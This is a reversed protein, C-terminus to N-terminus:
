APRVQKYLNSSASTIPVGPTPLAAAPRRPAGALARPTFGATITRPTSAGTLEGKDKRAKQGAMAGLSGTYYNAGAIMGSLGGVFLVDKVMGFRSPVLMSLGAVAGGALATAVDYPVKDKVKPMDGNRGHAYGLGYSAGSSVGATAIGKMLDSLAM